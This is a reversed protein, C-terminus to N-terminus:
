LTELKELREWGADIKKQIEEIFGSNEPKFLHRFRGQSKFWESVPIKEKPRYTIRYKGNEVEYLPWVCTQVALRAMYVTDEPNYRWGRHCPAIINMFSAGGCNLAKDAKTILDNWYAPSAQAVYPVGHAACIATLDKKEQTKGITAAKGVPNTTTDAGRPTASSRQIGTNMYAENNYCVYLCKHGRELMGSLAQMGIDYTGGDGGIAIFRYDDAVKGQKKLSRYMTEVGSIVAAANEFAVHIWSCNWATYPYITTSVEVCGTANSIVIPNKVASLVQRIVIPAGCGACLRHGGTLLESKRALEKINAM